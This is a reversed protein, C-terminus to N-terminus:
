LGLFYMVFRTTYASIILSVAEPIRFFSVFKAVRSDLSNFASDITQSLNLSSLIESAIDYSFTISFLKFKYWLVVAWKIFEAFFKTFFEYIGTSFFNEIDQRLDVIANTIDLLTM